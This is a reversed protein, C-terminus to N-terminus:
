HKQKTMFIISPLYHIIVSVEGASTLGDDHINHCVKHGCSTIVPSMVLPWEYSVIKCETSCEKPCFTKSMKYLLINAFSIKFFKVLTQQNYKSRM